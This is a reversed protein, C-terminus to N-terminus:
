PTIRARDLRLAASLRLGNWTRASAPRDTFNTTEVVPTNRGVVARSCRGSVPLGAGTRVGDLPIIRTDHVM